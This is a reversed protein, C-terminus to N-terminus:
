GIATVAIPNQSLHANLTRTNGRPFAYPRCTRTGIRHGCVPCNPRPTELQSEINECTQSTPTSAKLAAERIQDPHMDLMRFIDLLTM